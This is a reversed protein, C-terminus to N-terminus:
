ASNDQSEELHVLENLTIESAEFNQYAESGARVGKMFWEIHKVPIDAINIHFIRRPKSNTRYIGEARVRKKPKEKVLDEMNGFLNLFKRQLWNPNELLTVQAHYGTGWSLGTFLFVPVVITIAIVGIFQLLSM